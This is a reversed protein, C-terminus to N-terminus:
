FWCVALSFQLATIGLIILDCSEAYVNKKKLFICEILGILSNTPPSNCGIHKTQGPFPRLEALYAQHITMKSEQRGDIVKNNVLSIKTAFQTIRQSAYKCIEKITFLHTSVVLTLRDTQHANSRSFFTEMDLMFDHVVSCMLFYM